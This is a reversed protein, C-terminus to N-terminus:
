SDYFLIYIGMTAKDAPSGLNNWYDYVRYEWAKKNIEAQERM